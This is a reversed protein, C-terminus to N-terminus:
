KAPLPLLKGAVIAVRRQEEVARALPSLWGREVNSGSSWHTFSPLLLAGAGVVFCPCRASSAVGDSLVVAPHEHGFIVRGGRETAAALLATAEGEDPLHGHMLLHSGLAIQPELELGCGLRRLVEALAFDHNGEVFRLRTRAGIDDVLRRLDALAEGAPAGHLVDGLLVLEAPEFESVLADLRALTDDAGLPMLQGAFRHTWAYGLHLDAVVLTREAALWLARRADLVLGPELELQTRHM